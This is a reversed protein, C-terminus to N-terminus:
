RLKTRPAGRPYSRPEEEHGKFISDVLRIGATTIRALVKLGDRCSRSSSEDPYNVRHSVEGWVEDMLTRVQIECTIKTKQNAQVVYHVSNYMSARQQTKIDYERYLTEYELDWCHAIPGEILRYEQEEFLSLLHRNIEDIQETHLHLIRIGALDNIKGFVNSEDVDFPKNNTRREENRRMLKRYLSQPDKIRYLVTHLFPRLDPSTQIMGILSNAFNEFLHRNNQFQAVLRVFQATREKSM